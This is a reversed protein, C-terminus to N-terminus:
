RQSMLFKEIKNQAEICGTETGEIQMTRMSGSETLIEDLSTTINTGTESQLQIINEGNTGIVIGLM